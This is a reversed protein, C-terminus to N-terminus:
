HFSAPRPTRRARTLQHLLPELRDVIALVKRAALDLPRLVPIGDLVQPSELSPSDAPVDLEVTVDDVKVILRCFTPRRATHVDWSLQHAREAFADSLKDVTGPDPGPRAGIFADLDRTQRTIVQRIILAAGGAM